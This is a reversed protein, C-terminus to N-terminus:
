LNIIEQMVCIYNCPFNISKSSDACTQAATYALVERISWIGEMCKSDSSVKDVYSSCESSCTASSEITHQCANAEAATMALMKEECHVAKADCLAVYAPLISRLVCTTLGTSSSVSGMYAMMSDSCERPTNNANQWLLAMVPSTCFSPFYQPGSQGSIISDTALALLTTISSDRCSSFCLTLLNTAVATPDRPDRSEAISIARLLMKMSPASPSESSLCVELPNLGASLLTALNEIVFPLTSSHHASVDWLLACVARTASTASNLLRSCQSLIESLLFSPPHSVIMRAHAFTHTHRRAPARM